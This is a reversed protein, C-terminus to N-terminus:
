SEGGSTEQQGANALAAGLEARSIFRSSPWSLMCGTPTITITITGADDPNIGLAEAFRREETTKM